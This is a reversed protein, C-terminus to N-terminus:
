SRIADYSTQSDYVRRRRLRKIHTQLVELQRSEGETFLDCPILLTNVTLNASFTIERDEEDGSSEYSSLGLM